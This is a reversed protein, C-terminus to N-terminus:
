RMSIIKLPMAIALAARQWQTAGRERLDATTLECTEIHQLSVSPQNARQGAPYAHSAPCLRAHHLWPCSRLRCHNLPPSLAHVAGRTITSKRVFAVQTCRQGSSIRLASARKISASLVLPLPPPPPRASATSFPLNHTVKKIRARVDAKTRTRCVAWASHAGRQRAQPESVPAM